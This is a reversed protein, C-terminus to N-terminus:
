ASMSLSRPPFNLPVHNMSLRRLGAGLFAILSDVDEARYGRPVSHGPTKGCRHLLATDFIQRAHGFGADLHEDSIGPLSQELARKFDNLAASFYRDHWASGDAADALRAVVCLYNRWSADDSCEIGEFPLWYAYLVDEATFASKSRVQALARQWEEVLRGTRRALAEEFLLEKSGFHYNVLAVHVGAHGALARHSPDSFGHDAVLTEAADLLRERTADGRRPLTTIRAGEPM